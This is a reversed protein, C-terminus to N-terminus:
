NIYRYIDNGLSGVLQDWRHLKDGYGREKMKALDRAGNRGAYGALKTLTGPSFEQELNELLRQYNEETYHTSAQGFSREKEGELVRTQTTPTKAITKKVTPTQPQVSIVTAIPKPFAPPQLPKLPQSFSPEPIFTGQNPLKTIGESMFPEPERQEEQQNSYIQKWFDYKGEDPDFGNIRFLSQLNRYEVNTIIPHNNGNGQLFMAHFEARREWLEAEELKPTPRSLLYRITFIKYQPTQFENTASTKLSYLAMYSLNPVNRLDDFQFFRSRQNQEIGQLFINDSFNPFRPNHTYPVLGWANLSRRQLHDNGHDNPSQKKWQHIPDNWSIYYSNTVKYRADVDVFYVGEPVYKPGFQRINNCLVANNNTLDPNESYHPFQMYSGGVNRLHLVHTQRINKGWKTETPEPIHNKPDLNSDNKKSTSENFPNNTMTDATDICHGDLFRKGLRVTSRTARGGTPTGLLEYFDYGPKGGKYTESRTHAFSQHNQGDFLTLYNVRNKEDPGYVVFEVYRATADNYCEVVYKGNDQVLWRYSEPLIPFLHHPFRSTIQEYPGYVNEAKIFIRKFFEEQPDSGEEKLDKPTSNKVYPAPSVSTRKTKRHNLVNKEDSNSDENMAFSLNPSLFTTLILFNTFFKISSM